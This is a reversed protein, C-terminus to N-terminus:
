IAKIIRLTNEYITVIHFEQYNFITSEIHEKSGEWEVEGLDSYIVFLQEKPVFKSLYLFM